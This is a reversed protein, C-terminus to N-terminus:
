DRTVEKGAGAEGRKILRFVAATRAPAYVEFGVGQGFVYRATYVYQEDIRGMGGYEPRDSSFVCRYEGAERTPLFFSPYSGAPSFNFLYVCEGKLYALLKRQEDVWLNESEGGLQGCDRVFALMDNDFRLLSRYKLYGNESLSWQRRAYKHSWGNGERPFDIWEPHGFENGMFNLYGDGSLTLTIFRIMKHLAIARDIVPTHVANDMDTYMAADAMRFILTKDGVLAQDHSECYSVQKEGARHRTLEYYINGMEWYEDKVDKTLKIWMDPVGMNLRYDFGFGGASLPLAMGPMGSMDEAVTIANRRVAHTLENALMLYVQADINSNLSYYKDYKDFAQGLGHDWYLMSTVGDFRFGDFRFEELWYRLNSLLLRLTEDRSYDYLRSGWAKHWGKDGPLFYRGGQEDCGALGESTNPAVHSHVVDLLVHLGMAHATDIMHKLEEPAGFWQSPAFLSSVQYGFSAYYPHEMIAMLQVTNYGDAKIRPLVNEEFERYTGIVEKEQAMGVHAEYIVPADLRPTSYRRTRWKYPVDWVVGAFSGDANQEVRNIYSPIIDRTRGDRFVAHLKLQQGNALADGPLIAEWVGGELRTLPNAEARWGNCTGILSVQAADPLWERVTWTDEQRHVGFYRYGDACDTIKGTGVLRQRCSFYKAMRLEIDTRYPALWSDTSILKRAWLKDKTLKAM